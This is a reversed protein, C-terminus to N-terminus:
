SRTFRGSRRGCTPRYTGRRGPTPPFPLSSGAVGATAGTSGSGQFWEQVVRTGNRSYFFSGGDGDPATWITPEKEGFLEYKSLFAARERTLDPALALHRDYIMESGGEYIQLGGFSACFDRIHLALTFGREAPHQPHFNYFTGMYSEGDAFIVVFQIDEGV